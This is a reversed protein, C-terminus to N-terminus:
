LKKLGDKWAGSDATKLKSAITKASKTQLKKSINEVWRGTDYGIDSYEKATIACELYDADRLIEEELDRLRLTHLIAVKLEKPMKRVQDAEVRNELSRDVTIYRHTIKNLDLLRTEHMDHFVAATCIRNAAEDSLGEMKALIFAVIAARFVHDAVSEPSQVKESWWGSRKVRKLMGAEFLYDLTSEM